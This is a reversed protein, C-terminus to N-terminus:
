PEAVCLVAQISPQDGALLRWSRGASESMLLEGSAVGCYLRGPHAPSPAFGVPVGDLTSPLGDMGTEWTAGGSSSRFIMASADYSANWPPGHCAGAVLAEVPGAALGASAAYRRTMGRSSPRWTAAADESKYVGQGTVAYLVERRLPHALLRHVDPYLGESAPAFTEGGDSTKFIGGVEIGAYFTLPSAPDFALGLVRPRSTPSPHYWRAAEPADRLARLERWSRGGDDSRHLSAPETGAICVDPARPHAALSLVDAELVWDFALTPRQVRCVGHALIAVLLADGAPALATIYRGQLGHSRRRAERGEVDFALLGDTTGLYVTEKM